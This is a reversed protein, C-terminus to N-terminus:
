SWMTLVLGWHTGTLIPRGRCASGSALRCTVLWSSPFTVVSLRRLSVDSSVFLLLATGFRAFSLCLIGLSRVSGRWGGPVCILLVPFGSRPRHRCSRDPNFCGAVPSSWSWACVTTRGQPWARSVAGMHVRDGDLLPSPAAQLDRGRSPPSYRYSICLPLPISFTVCVRCQSRSHAPRTHVPRVSRCVCRVWVQM